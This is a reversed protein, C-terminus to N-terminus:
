QTSVLDRRSTGTVIGKDVFVVTEWRNTKMYGGSTTTFSNGFGTENWGYSDWLGNSFSYSSTHSSIPINQRTESTYILIISKDNVKYEKDPVGNKVVFDEKKMGLIGEKLNESKFDDVLKYWETTNRKEFMKESKIKTLLVDKRSVPVQYIKIIKESNLPDLSIKNLVYSDTVTIKFNKKCFQTIQAHESDSTANMLIEISRSTVDVGRDYFSKIITLLKQTDFNRDNTHHVKFYNQMFIALACERSIPEADLLTLIVEPDSSNFCAETLPYRNKKNKENVNGDNQIIHLVDEKTMERWDESTKYKFSSGSYIISCGCLALLSCYLLKKM